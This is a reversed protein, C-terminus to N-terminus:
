DDQGGQLIPQVVSSFDDIDDFGADMRAIFDPNSMLVEAIDPHMVVYSGDKNVIVLDNETIGDQAMEEDTIDDDAPIYDYDSDDDDSDIDNADISDDLDIPDDYDDSTDFEDNNVPSVTDFANDLDDDNIDNYDM